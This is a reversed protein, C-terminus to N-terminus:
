VSPEIVEIPPLIEHGKHTLFDRMEACDKPNLSAGAQPHVSGDSSPWLPYKM